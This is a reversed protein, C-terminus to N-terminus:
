AGALEFLLCLKLFFCIAGKQTESHFMFDENTSRNGAHHIIVCLTSHLDVLKPLLYSDSKCLNVLQRSEKISVERVKM